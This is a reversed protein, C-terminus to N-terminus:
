KTNGRLRCSTQSPLSSDETTNGRLRCSTESQLSTDEKTDGRLRSSAQSPLSINGRTNGRLLRSLVAPKSSLYKKKGNGCLRAAKALLSYIAVTEQRSAGSEVHTEQRGESEIHM